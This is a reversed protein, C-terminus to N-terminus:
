QFVQRRSDSLLGFWRRWSAAVIVILFLEDLQRM